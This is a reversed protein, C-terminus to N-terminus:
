ERADNWSSRDGPSRSRSHASDRSFDSRQSEHSDVSRSRSRSRYRDRERAPKDYRSSGHYRESRDRDHQHHGDGPRGNEYGSRRTHLWHQSVDSVQEANRNPRHRGHDRDRGAFPATHQRTRPHGRSGHRGIPNIASSDCLSRRRQFVDGIPSRLRVGASAAERRRDM